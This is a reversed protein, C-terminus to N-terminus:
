VGGLGCIRVNGGLALSSIDMAALSGDDGRGEHIWAMGCAFGVGGQLSLAADEHLCFFFPLM